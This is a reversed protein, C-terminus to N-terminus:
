LVSGANGERNLLSCLIYAKYTIYTVELVLSSTQITILCNYWIKNDTIVENLIGPDSNERDMMHKNNLVHSERKLNWPVIYVRWGVFCWSTCVCVCVYVRVCVCVCVCVRIFSVHKPPWKSHCPMLMDKISFKKVGSATEDAKKKLYRNILLCWKTIFLQQWERRCQM